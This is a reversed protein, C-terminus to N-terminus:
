ISERHQTIQTENEHGSIKYREIHRWAPSNEPVNYGRGRSDIRQADVAFGDLNFWVSFKSKLGDIRYKHAVFGGNSFYAIQM